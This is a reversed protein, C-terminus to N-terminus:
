ADQKTRLKEEEKKEEPMLEVMNEIITLNKESVKCLKEAIMEIRKPYSKKLKGILLFEISVHLVTALALLDEAKPISMNTRQDNIKRYKINSISSLEKLTKINLKTRLYDVREWFNYPNINNM